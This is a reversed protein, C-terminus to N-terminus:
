PEEGDDETLSILGRGLIMFTALSLFGTALSAGFSPGSIDAPGFGSWRETALWIPCCLVVNILVQPAFSSAMEKEYSRSLLGAITWYTVLVVASSFTGTLWVVEQMPDLITSARAAIDYLVFRGLVFSSALIADRGIAQKNVQQLKDGFLSTMWDDDNDDDPRVM